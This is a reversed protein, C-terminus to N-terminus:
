VDRRPGVIPSADRKLKVDIQAPKGNGCFGSANRNVPLAPTPSDAATAALHHAQGLDPWNTSALTVNASVVIDFNMATRNTLDFEFSGTPM